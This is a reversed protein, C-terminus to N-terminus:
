YRGLRRSLDEVLDRVAEPLINVESLPQSLRTRGDPRAEVIEPLRSVCFVGGTSVQDCTKCLEGTIEYSSHRFILCLSQTDSVGCAGSKRSVKNSYHSRAM